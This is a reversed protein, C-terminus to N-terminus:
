SLNDYDGSVHPFMEHRVEHDLTMIKGCCSCLYKDGSTVYESQKCEECWVRTDCGENASEQKVQKDTTDSM